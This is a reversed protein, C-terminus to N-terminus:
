NSVVKGKHWDYENSNSCQATYIEYDTRRKIWTESKRWIRPQSDNYNNNNDIHKCHRYKCNGGSRCGNYSSYFRCFSVSNPDSHNFRCRGGYGCGILSISGYLRCNRPQNSTM